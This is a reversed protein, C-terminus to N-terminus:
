IWLCCPTFIFKCQTAFRPARKEKRFKGEMVLRHVEDTFFKKNLNEENPELFHLADDIIDQVAEEHLNLPSAKENPFEYFRQRKKQHHLNSLNKASTQSNEADM